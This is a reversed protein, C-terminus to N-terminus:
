IICLATGARGQDAQGALLHAGTAEAGAQAEGGVVAGTHVHHKVAGVASIDQFYQRVLAPNGQCALRRNVEFSGSRLARPRLGSVLHRRPCDPRLAEVIGVPCAQGLAAQAAFDTRVNARGATAEIDTVIGDGLGGAVLLNLAQAAPVRAHSFAVPANCASVVRTRGLGLAQAVAEVTFEVIVGGVEPRQGTDAATAAHVLARDVHVDGLDQLVNGRPLAHYVIRIKGM